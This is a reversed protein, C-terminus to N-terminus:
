APDGQPPDEQLRTSALAVKEVAEKGFFQLVGQIELRKTECTLKQGELDRARAAVLDRLGAIEAELQSIRTASDASLKQVAAQGIGLFAALAEMQVMGAEIISEIPVGFARLSAEVIQKKVGAPTESPLTALLDVAKKMREQEEMGVGGAAFVEAFNVSAPTAPEGSVPLVVEQPVVEAYKAILAEAEEPTPDAAATTTDSAAPEEDNVVFLSLFSKGLSRM